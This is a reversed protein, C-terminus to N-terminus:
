QRMIVDYQRVKLVRVTTKPNQSKRITNRIKRMMLFPRLTITPKKTMRRAVVTEFM